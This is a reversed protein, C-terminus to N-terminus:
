DDGGVLHDFLSATQQLAYLGSNACLPCGRVRRLHGSNPTFRVDCNTLAMDAKSGFRVDAEHM